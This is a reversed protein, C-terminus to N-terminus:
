PLRRALWPLLADGQLRQFARVTPIGPPPPQRAGDLFFGAFGALVGTVGAPDADATLPRACVLAEPDHGGHVQVNVLVLLSDLWAPGRCAWPWDVVNVTGHPGLLLNDARIDLHCLTDGGLAALGREAAACLQPLRDRAWPDLDAPPDAAIRRWGAFDYGLQEAATPAAAVPAPTLVAAMTELTSLVAALEAPQWPTVPHRGEVDTFVLAVWDGDDYSGLLRPTPTGPPLAAAILAEARHMGPSRDNQAPSVAKVFARGGGATRVRDATGPSFGGPQSEAAVVRDGLIEEVAGRVPGPLEAWRLRSKTM